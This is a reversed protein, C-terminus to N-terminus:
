FVALRLVVYRLTITPGTTLAPIGLKIGNSYVYVSPGRAYGDADEPGFVASDSIYMLWSPAGAYSNVTWHIICMPTYGLDPWTVAFGNFPLSVTVEGTRVVSLTALDKSDFVVQNPPVTESDANYGPKVLRMRYNGDVKKIYGIPM